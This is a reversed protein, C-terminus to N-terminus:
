LHNSNFSDDMSNAGFSDNGFVDHDNATSGFPNGNIDMGNLMPLGNINVRPGDDDFGSGTGDDSGRGKFSSDGGVVPKGLGERRSFLAGVLAFLGFGGALWPWLGPGGNHARAWSAQGAKFLVVIHNNTRTVTAEVLGKEFVDDSGDRKVFGTMAELNGDPGLDGEVRLATLAPIGAVGFEARLNFIGGSISVNKVALDGSGLQVVDSGPFARQLEAKISNPLASGFAWHSVDFQAAHGVSCVQALYM